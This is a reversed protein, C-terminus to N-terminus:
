PSSLSLCVAIFQVNGVVLTGSCFSVGDLGPLTGSDNSDFLSPDRRIKETVCKRPSLGTFGTYLAHSLFYTSGTWSMAPSLWPRPGERQNRWCPPVGRLPPDQQAHWDESSQSHLILLAGGDLFRLCRLTHVAIQAFSCGQLDKSVWDLTCDAGM